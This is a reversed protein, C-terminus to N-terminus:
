SCTKSRAFTPHCRKRCYYFTGPALMWEDREAEDHTHEEGPQERKGEERSSPLGRGLAGDDSRSAV